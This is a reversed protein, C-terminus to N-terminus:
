FERYEHQTNSSTSQKPEGSVWKDPAQYISLNNTITPPGVQRATKTECPASIKEHTLSGSVTVTGYYGFVTEWKVLTRPLTGMM